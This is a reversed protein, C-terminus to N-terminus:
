AVAAADEGAAGHGEVAALDVVEVGVFEVAGRQDVVEDGDARVVVVEEVFSAPAQPAGVVSPEVEDFGVAGVDGDDAVFACWEGVLGGAGPRGWRRRERDVM